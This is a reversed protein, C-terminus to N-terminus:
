YIVKRVFYDQQSITRNNLAEADARSMQFRGASGGTTTRMFLEVMEIRANDVGANRVMLFSTASIANFVRDETDVTMEARLSTASSSTIKREFIGVNEFARDFNELVADPMKGVGSIPSPSATSTKPAAPAQQQQPRPRLKITDGLSPQQKREAQASANPNLDIVNANAMGIKTLQESRAVDILSPDFQLSQGNELLVLAKGNVVTWKAKAAYRTGDKLVVIYRAFSPVAVLATLALLTFMRRMTKMLTTEPILADPPRNYQRSAFRRAARPRNRASRDM